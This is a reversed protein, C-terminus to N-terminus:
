PHFQRMHFSSQEQVRGFGQSVPCAARVACGGTMCRQGDASNLFAHCAPLDYGAPTLAGVPCATACPRTCDTCPGAPAGPMDDPIDAVFGLAGRFSVWLGAIDHVLFQVRSSWARGSALAWSYFPHPPHADFPYIARAGLELAMVDINRQSWRDMPHAATDLYEASASFANWFGPEDPGLLVLTKIGDPLLARQGRVTGLVALDHAQALEAIRALAPAM